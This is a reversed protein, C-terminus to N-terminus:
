NLQVNQNYAKKLEFEYQELLNDLRLNEIEEDSILSIGNKKQSFQLISSFSKSGTIGKTDNERKENLTDSIEILITKFKLLKLNLKNLFNNSLSSLSSELSEDVLINIKERSSKTEISPPIDINSCESAKEVYSVIRSQHIETSIIELNKLAQQYTNKAEKLCSKLGEIKSYLFKLEKNQKAKIEYYTRSKILFNLFQIKYFTLKKRVKEISSKLNKELNEMEKLKQEYEIQAEIQCSDNIQKATETEGVKLIALNLMKVLTEKDCNTTESTNDVQNSEFKELSDECYEKM